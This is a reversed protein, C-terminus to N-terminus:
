IRSIPINSVTLLTPSAANMRRYEDALKWGSQLLADWHLGGASMWANEM